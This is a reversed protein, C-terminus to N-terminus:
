LTLQICLNALVRTPFNPCQNLLSFVKASAFFFELYVHSIKLIEIRGLIGSDGKGSSALSRGDSFSLWRFSLVGINDRRPFNGQLSIGLRRM